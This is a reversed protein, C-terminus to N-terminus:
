YEYKILVFNNLAKLKNISILSIFMDEVKLTSLCFKRDMGIGNM